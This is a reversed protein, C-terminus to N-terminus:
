AWGDPKARRQVRRGVWGRCAHPVAVQPKGVAQAAGEQHGQAVRAQAQAAEGGASLDGRGAGDGLATRRSPSSRPQRLPATACPQQQQQTATAQNASSRSSGGGTGLERGVEAAAGPRAAPKWSSAARKRAAMAGLSPTRSASASCPSVGEASIASLMRHPTSPPHGLRRDCRPRGPDRTCVSDSPTCGSSASSLLVRGTAAAGPVLLPLQSRAARQKWASASPTDSRESSCSNASPPPAPPAVLWSM